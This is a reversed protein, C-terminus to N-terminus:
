SPTEVTSSYTVFHVCNAAVEGLITNPPLCLSEALVFLLM